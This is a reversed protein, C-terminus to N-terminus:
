RATGSCENEVDVGDTHAQEEGAVHQGADHDDREHRPEGDRTLVGLTRPPAGVPQLLQGGRQRPGARRGGDVLDHQHLAALREAGVRAEDGGQGVVARRDLEGRREAERRRLLLPPLAERGRM